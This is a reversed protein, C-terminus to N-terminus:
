WESRYRSVEFTEDQGPVYRKQWYRSSGEPLEIQANKKLNALHGNTDGNTHGNLTTPIPM